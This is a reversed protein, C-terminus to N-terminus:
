PIWKSVQAGAARTFWLPLHKWVKSAMKFKSNSPSLNIAAQGKPLYVNYYLPSPEFGHRRKFGHPGANDRRTRNFDFWRLGRQVGLEMTRLYMLNNACCETAAPLSGSFYPTIEDRFIFSILGAVCEGRRKVVACVCDQGYNELVAHFFRRSYNPSGLRRLTVAYMDYVEDILHPGVEFAGQGLEEASQRACRRTARPLSALVDEVKDPLLKRFTDYRDIVPLDLARKERHRLELCRAGQEDCIDRARQALAKTADDDCALIGGYTAYPISVLMKGAIASKVLFMPLVGALSGGKWAALHMPRHGYAQEVAMSWTPLHFVTGAPEGLVYERWM